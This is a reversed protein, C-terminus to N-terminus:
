AVVEFRGLDYYNYRGFKDMVRIGYPEYPLVFAVYTVGDDFLNEVNTRNLCRVEIFNESSCPSFSIFSEVIEHVRKVFDPNNNAKYGIDMNTYRSKEVFDIYKSELSDAAEQFNTFCGCEQYSEGEVVQFTKYAKGFDLLGLVVFRKLRLDFFCDWMLLIPKNQM